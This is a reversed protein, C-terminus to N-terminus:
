KKSTLKISNGHNLAETLTVTSGSKTVMFITYSEHGEYIKNAVLKNINKYTINKQPVFLLFEKANQKNLKKAEDKVSQKTENKAKTAAKETQGWVMNKQHLQSGNFKDYKKYLKVMQKKTLVLYYYTTAKKEKELGGSQNLTRIKASNGNSSFSIRTPADYSNINKGSTGGDFEFTEGKLTQLYRVSQSSSENNSSSSCAALTFATVVSIGLLWLKKKKIQIVGRKTCISIM